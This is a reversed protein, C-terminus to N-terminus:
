GAGLLPGYYGRCLLQAQAFQTFQTFKNAREGAGGSHSTVLRVGEIGAKAPIAYYSMCTPQGVQMAGCDAGM